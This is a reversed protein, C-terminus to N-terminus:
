SIMCSFTVRVYQKRGGRRTEVSCTQKVLAATNNSRYSVNDACHLTTRSRRFVDLIACSSELLGSTLRYSTIWSNAM